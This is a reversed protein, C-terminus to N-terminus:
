GIEVDKEMSQGGKVYSEYGRCFSDLGLVLVVFKLFQIEALPSRRSYLKFNHWLMILIIRIMLRM